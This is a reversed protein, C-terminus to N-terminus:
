TKKYKAQLRSLLALEQEQQAQNEKEANVAAAIKEQEKKADLHDKIFRHTRGQEIITFPIPLDWIIDTYSTEGRFTDEDKLSIYISDDDIAFMIIPSGRCFNRCAAELHEKLEEQLRLYVKMEQAYSKLTGTDLIDSITITPPTNM